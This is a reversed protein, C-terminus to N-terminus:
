RRTDSGNQEISKDETDDTLIVENWFARENKVYARILLTILTAPAIGLREAQKEFLAATGPRARVSYQTSQIKGGKDYPNGM